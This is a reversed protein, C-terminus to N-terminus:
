SLNIIFINIIKKALIPLIPLFIIIFKLLILIFFNEFFFNKKDVKGIALKIPFFIKDMSYFYISKLRLIIESYKM